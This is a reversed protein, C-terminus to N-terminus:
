CRVTVHQRGFLDDLVMVLGQMAMVIYLMEGNDPIGFFIQEIRNM